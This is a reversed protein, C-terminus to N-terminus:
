VRRCPWHALLFQFDCTSQGGPSLYGYPYNAFGRRFGVAKPHITSLDLAFICATENSTGEVMVIGDSYYELRHSMLCSDVDRTM